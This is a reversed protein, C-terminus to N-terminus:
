RPFDGSRRVDLGQGAGCAVELVDKGECYQAAWHYRHCTRMLQEQSILQGDIETVNIFEATM